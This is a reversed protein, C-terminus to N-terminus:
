QKDGSQPKDADKNKNREGEGSCGVTSCLLLVTLLLFLVRKM